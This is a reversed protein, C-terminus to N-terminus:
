AEQEVTVRAIRLMGERLLTLRLSPPPAELIGALVDRTVQADLDFEDQVREYPVIVPTEPDHLWRVIRSRLDGARSLAEERHRQRRAKPRGDSRVRGRADVEALDQERVEPVPPTPQAPAQATGPAPRSAGSRSAAERGPASSAQGFLGVQRVEPSDDSGPDGGFAPADVTPASDPAEGM